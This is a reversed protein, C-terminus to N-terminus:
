GGLQEYLARALEHEPNETLAKSVLIKAKRPDGQKMSLRGLQYHAEAKAESTAGESPNDATPRMMTVARFARTAIEDDDVDLALQGLQIAVPGNRPDMEFARTLSALADSLFGEEMQIWSMERYVDCLEKVRRGRQAAIMEELLAMADASRGNLAYARALLVSCRINTPDVKRVEELVEAGRGPDGDPALLLQGAELLLEIRRGPDQEAAAQDMLMQALEGHAGTSEYLAALWERVLESDPSVQLAHELGPRADNFREARQCADALRLAADVLDEGQELSVLRMYAEAAANWDEAGTELVALRRLAFANQPAERVMEGLRARAGDIEGASELVEVLRLTLEQDRPPEARAIARELAEILRDTYGGNLAHARELDVLADDDRGLEGLLAARGALLAPDPEEDDLLRGVVELAPDPDGAALHADVMEAILRPDTSGQAVTERLLRALGESDGRERYRTLLQERLEQDEPCALAGLELAREQGADDGQEARLAVLRALLEKAKEGREVRLLGELAEGILFEDGKQEVLRLAAALAPLSSANWDLVARYVDLADDSREQGELLGGLRLSLTEIAEVDQRDKAADVQTVLLLVLEELRGSKELISALLPGATQDAPNDELVEKLIQEAEDDQDSEELLLTAQEVRLRARDEVAEVLPATQAILEIVRDRHGLKRHVDLLPRWVDGDAPEHELLEEYISAAREKDDLGESAERAVELLLGRREDVPLFSAAQQRLELSRERRGALAHGRSLELRLWAADADDLEMETDLAAQLVTEALTPDGVRESLAVAERLVEPRRAPSRAIRALAEALTAERGEMRGIRELLALAREPPEPADLVPRLLAEARDPDPALELGRSLLDLGEDRTGSDGLRVEALRYLPEADSPMEGDQWAAVRRELVQAEADRDGLWDYVRGLAAWAADDPNNAEELKNQIGRARTLIGSQQPADAAVSEAHLMVLDALVRAAEAPELKGALRAELARTLLEHRGRRRLAQELRLAERESELAAELASEVFESARVPDDKHAAIESLDLLAEARSPGEAAASRGLVLLLARYMREAKELEGQEFALRALAHLIGAHAQDIRNAAGLEALAEERNGAALAVRALAFHVLARDKPRRSGYREIRARLIAGAEEFRGAQALADSLALPLSADEPDLAAAQELLPVALAPDERKDLHLNAAERLLALRSASSEADAAQAVLLDALAEWDSAERYLEGLRERLGTVDVAVPLAQELRMRARKRMGAAAYAEALELARPALVEPGSQAVLWELVEAARRHEGRSKHIAALAELSAEGGLGAGQRFDELARDEDELRDRCIVAARAWLESGADREGAEARCRAQQEWLSALQGPRGEDELLRALGDVAEAAVADAADDAFLEQYLDIARERDGLREACLVAADRKLERRRETDFPLGAGRQYLQVVEQYRGETILRSSLVDLVWSAARAAGSEEANEQWAAISLELLDHLVRHDESRAADSAAVEVALPWQGAAVFARLAAAADGTQSRHLEGLKRLLSARADADETAEAEEGLLTALETWRQEATLLSVLAEFSDGDRGYESRVRRWMEIASGADGLRDALTRAVRVLDARAADADDTQAARLELAADLDTWSGAQELADVLGDLAERDEADDDLRRRWNKVARDPDGLEAAAVRAAEGLARKRAEPDTELDVCRELVDCREPARGSEELLTDLARAAELALERDDNEPSLVEAYLDISATAEGLARYVGAAESLLGFGLAADESRRAVAVLLGARRAASGTREALEALRERYEQSAPKIAVLSSMADFAGQPDDLTELRLRVIEELGKIRTKDDKAAELEIELMRAMDATRGQAEYYTKLRRAARDRVTFNRKRRRGGSTPTMTDRSAPLAVLRELLEHAGVAEPADDLMAELLEFAPLAEGVDLWLSAIRGRLAALEDGELGGLRQSLLEILPQVRGEREYLRELSSEIRSDGPAAQNLQELYLIARDPDAAFDKAAMSAERLLEVRASEDETHSLARDYLEFLDPWRGAANFALKLRDFAWGAAPSRDLIRELLRVVREPEDFWEEHFEIMRQGLAEVDEPSLPSDLARAYAEALPQPRDLKRTMREAIDWLAADGPREDAGELAITLSTEPDDAYCELLQELWRGRAEELGSSDRSVNSCTGSFPLERKQTARAPRPVSSCSRLGRGHRSTM